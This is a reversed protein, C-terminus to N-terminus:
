SNKKFVECDSLPNTSAKKGITNGKIKRDKNKIKEEKTDFIKKSSERGDEMEKRRGKM